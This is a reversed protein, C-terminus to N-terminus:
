EELCAWLSVFAYAAALPVVGNGCARLRDLRSAMGDDVGRVRPQTAPALDPRARLIREWEARSGPGPPFIPVMDPQMHYPGNATGKWGRADAEGGADLDLSSGRRGDDHERTDAVPEGAGAVPEGARDRWGAETVRDDFGDADAVEARDGRGTAGAASRGEGLGQPRQSRTDAMGEGRPGPEGHEREGIGGGGRGSGDTYALEGGADASGRRGDWAGGSREHGLHSSDVVNGRGGVVAASVRSRPEAAEGDAAREPARRVCGAIGVGVDAGDRRDADNGREQEDHRVGDSREGERGREYRHALIFLRERRHPAGVESASFLGAAVRFGMGQLEDRVVDFGLSLHGGVNEFFCLAPEVEAVIRAISPWLHRPDDAGRREGAFSFPQCPYGGTICDVVGRWPRGDFTRLDSWVPAAALAKEEMRAALVAAAFAEREVHCVVRAAGGTALELGLDLGGVGSCLSLVNFCGRDVRNVEKM